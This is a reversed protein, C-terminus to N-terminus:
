AIARVSRLCGRFSDSGFARVGLTVLRADSRCKGLASETPSVSADRGKADGAIFLCLRFAHEQLLFDCDAQSYGYTAAGHRYCYDHAACAQRMRLGIPAGNAARPFVMAEVLPPISCSLGDGRGGLVQVDSATYAIAHATPPMERSGPPIANALVHDAVFRATDSAFTFILATGCLVVVGVALCSVKLAGWFARSVRALVM